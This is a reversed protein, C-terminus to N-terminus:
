QRRCLPLAVETFFKQWSVAKGKRKALKAKKDKLKDKIKAINPPLTKYYKPLRAAAMKQRESEALDEVEKVLKEQKKNLEDAEAKDSCIVWSEKTRLEERDTRFIWHSRVAEELRKSPDEGCRVEAVLLRDPKAERLLKFIEPQAHYLKDTLHVELSQHVSGTLKWVPEILRGTEKFVMNSKVAWEEDVVYGGFVVAGLLSTDKSLSDKLVERWDMSCFVKAAAGTFWVKKKEPHRQLFHAIHVSHSVLEKSALGRYGFIKTDQPQLFKKRLMNLHVSQAESGRKKEDKEITEVEKEYRRTLVESEPKLVEQHLERKKLAEAKQAEMHARQKESLPLDPNEKLKTGIVTSLSSSKGHGQQRAQKTKEVLYTNLSGENRKRKTGTDIRKPILAEDQKEINSRRKKPLKYKKAGFMARYKTKSKKCIPGPTIIAQGKVLKRDCFEKVPPGNMYVRMRGTLTDEKFQGHRSGKKGVNFRSELSGTGRPLGRLAYLAESVAKVRGKYKHDATKEWAELLQLGEEKMAREVDERMCLMDTALTENSVGAVDAFLKLTAVMEIDSGHEKWSIIDFPHISKALEYDKALSTDFVEAVNQMKKLIKVITEAEQEESREPRCYTTEGTSKHFITNKGLSELSQKMIQYYGKSYSASAFRPAGEMGRGGFMQRFEAMMKIHDSYATILNQHSEHGEDKHVYRSAIELFEATAPLLVETEEEQLEALLNEAWPGGYTSLFALVARFNLIITRLAQLLSDFRSPASSVSHKGTPLKKPGAWEQGITDLAEQVENLTRHVHDSFEHRCRDRNKLAKCLGGLETPNTKGGSKNTVLLGLLHGIDPDGKMCNELDRQKAHMLCRGIWRLNKIIKKVKAFQASLPEAALGDADFAILCEQVRKMCAASGKCFKKLCAGIAQAKEMASNLGKHMHWDVLMDEQNRDKFVCRMVMQEFSGAGDQCWCAFKLPNKKSLLDEHVRDLVAAGHSLTQQRFIKESNRWEPVNEIDGSQRAKECNKKYMKGTANRPDEKLLGYGISMQIDTPVDDEELDKEEDEPKQGAAKKHADSLLHSELCYKKLVCCTGHALPMKKLHGKMEPQQQTYAMCTDCGYQFRDTTSTDIFHCIEESWQIGQVGSNEKAALQEMFDKWERQRQAVQESSSQQKEKKKERRGKQKKKKKERRKTNSRQQFGPHTM